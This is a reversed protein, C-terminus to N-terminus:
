DELAPLEVTEATSPTPKEEGSPTEVNTMADEASPEASSHTSEVPSEMEGTKDLGSNDLEM